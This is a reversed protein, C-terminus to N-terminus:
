ITKLVIEQLISVVDYVYEKDHLRPSFSKFIKKLDEASPSSKLFKGSIGKFVSMDEDTHVSMLLMYALSSSPIESKEILKWAEARFHPIQPICYVLARKADEDGAKYM